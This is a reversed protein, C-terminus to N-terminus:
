SVNCVELPQNTPSWNVASMNHDMCELTKTMQQQQMRQPHEKMQEQMRQSHEQMRQSHQKMQEQMSQAHEKM